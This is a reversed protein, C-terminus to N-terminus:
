RKPHPIRGRRAARPVITPALPPATVGHKVRHELVANYTYDCFTMADGVTIGGDDLAEIFAQVFAQLHQPTLKSM